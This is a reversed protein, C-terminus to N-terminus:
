YRLPINPMVHAYYTGQRNVYIIRNKRFDVTMYSLHVFSRYFSVRNQIKDHDIFQRLCKTAVPAQGRGTCM